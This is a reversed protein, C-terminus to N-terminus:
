VPRPRMLSVTCGPLPIAAIDSAGTEGWIVPVAPTRTKSLAQIKFRARSREQVYSVPGHSSSREADVESGRGADALCVVHEVLAAAALLPASVDHDADDLGVTAGLRDLLEAIELDNGAALDRIAARGDLLHVEVRHEGTGRTHCEDVLERVGVRRAAPICLSPLVDLLQELSADIDDRRHVDLM